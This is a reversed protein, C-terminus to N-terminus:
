PRPAAIMVGAASEIREVVNRFAALAVDREADPARDAAEAGRGADEHAPDEGVREAPLPDEEHVDRDPHERDNERRDQEVLAAVGAHLREVKRARHEDRGAEGREHVRDRLGPLVAPEGRRRDAEEDDGEGEEGAEDAPLEPVRLREHAEAEEARLRHGPAFTAPNM